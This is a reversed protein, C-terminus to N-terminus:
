FCVDLSYDDGNEGRSVDERIGQVFHLVLEGGGTVRKQQHPPTERTKMGLLM